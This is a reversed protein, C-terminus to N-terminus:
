EQSVYHISTIHRNHQEVFLFDKPDLLPDYCIGVIRGTPLRREWTLRVDRREGAQLTIIKRGRLAYASLASSYGSPGEYLEVYCTLAAFNGENWVPFFVLSPEELGLGVIQPWFNSSCNLYPRPLELRPQTNRRTGLRLRLDHSWQGPPPPQIPREPVREPSPLRWLSPDPTRVTTM